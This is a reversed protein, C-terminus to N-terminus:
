MQNEKKKGGEPAEDGVDVRSEARRHQHGEDTQHRHGDHENVGVLDSLLPSRIVVNVASSGVACTDWLAAFVCSCVSRDACSLPILRPLLSFTGHM